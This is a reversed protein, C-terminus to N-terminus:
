ALDFRGYLSPAKAAWSAAVDDRSGEPIALRAMIAESKVAEAVLELCMAHLEEAPGEVGEEVEKLSFAYYAREDWYRRGDAHHWTFGIAEASERWGPREETAIRKM